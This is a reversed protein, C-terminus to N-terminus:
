VRLFKGLGMWYLYDRSRVANKNSDCQKFEKCNEQRPFFTFNFACSRFPM